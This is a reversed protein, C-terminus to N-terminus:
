KRKNLTNIGYFNEEILLKRIADPIDNSKADKRIESSAAHPIRLPLIAVNGGLSKIKGLGSKNIPWGERKVVGIIIKPIFQEANLWSPIAEILDSGIVFTLESNPWIMSATEITKVTWQSSLTTKLILKKNGISKVLTELLKQRENLGIIHSKMPNNSAWTAVKPFLKLLGELLCQHGKTPPDASTGFLAIRDINKKM